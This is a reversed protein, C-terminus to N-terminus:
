PRAEGDARSGRTTRIDEVQRGAAHERHVVRKAEREPARAASERDELLDEFLERYYVMAQRLDETSAEGKRHRVAIIRAARYNEVVRPHHVSLDAARQEFDSVPYGRRKMVDEVLRDAERVAREPADVFDAQVARWEATFRNFQEMTLPHIELHEVREKRKLLENEARRRDGTERVVRTYESGYSAQLQESRRRQWVFWGAVAAIAVALIIVLTVLPDM